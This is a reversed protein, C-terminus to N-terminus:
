ENDLENNGADVVEEQVEQVQTKEAQLEDVEKQVQEFYIKEVEVFISKLVWYVEGVPMDYKTLIQSLEQSLNYSMLNQKM